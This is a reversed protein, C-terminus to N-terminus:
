FNADFFLRSLEGLRKGFTNFKEQCHVEVGKAYTSLPNKIDTEVFLSISGRIGSSTAPM